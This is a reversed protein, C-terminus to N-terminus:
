IWGKERLQGAYTRSVPVEAGDKLTLTARGDGRRAHTIADRAVWWSRHVQMGEVGELEAVADALRLLILDQGKSTHLRLYHDEAEVAWVEAGRLKLPLRELFKPPAPSTAPPRDTDRRMWAVLLCFFLSTVLSVLLYGPIAEARPGYPGAVLRVAVWVVLGMPAFMLLGAALGRRWYLTRSLGFRSTARFAAVGMLTAIWSIAVMFPIRLALPMDDTDFAGTFGLFAGVLVGPLLTTRLLAWTRGATRSARVAGGPTERVGSTM